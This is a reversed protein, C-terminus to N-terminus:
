AVRGSMQHRYRSFGPNTVSRMIGGGAGYRNCSDCHHGQHFKLWLDATEPSDTAEIGHVTGDYHVFVKSCEAKFLAFVALPTLMGPPLMISGARGENNWNEHLKLPGPIDFLERILLEGAETLDCLTRYGYGCAEGTLAIVGYPELDNWNNIHKV